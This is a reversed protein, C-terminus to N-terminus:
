GPTTGRDAGPRGRAGQHGLRWLRPRRGVWRMRVGWENLQDRRRRIVDRNFGMLFRVEDPSASGTRPRSPTPRCTAHRRGRHRRRRRRAAVAEGAEHGKTRPLGRQTPGAATATWSSRSTGRCWTPPCPPRGPAPRTRSRRRTRARAPEGVAPLRPTPDRREVLRLSRVGRELHWQLFATSWAAARAATGPTALRRRGGLRRRAAGRAARPDGAGAGRLRAPPLGPLGRRRRRPQVRPAPGPRRLPRLRPLEAGLRRGRALAAPLRRAGPRPRARRRGALAAGRRAAPVAAAVARAGRHAPRGDRADRDRRHLRHLRPRHADGYPALTEAQTVTDLSRGEYCQVDVIM